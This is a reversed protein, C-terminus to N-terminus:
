QKLSQKTLIIAEDIVSLPFLRNNINKTDSSSRIQKEICLKYCWAFVIDTNINISREKCIEVVDYFDSDGPNEFKDLRQNIIKLQAETVGFKEVVFAELKEREEIEKLILESNKILARALSKLESDKSTLPAPYTGYKHISPLVEHFLWRQFKKCAPSNDRSVIRYMGPQTVFPEKRSSGAVSVFKREDEDLAEAAAKVLEGLGKKGHIASLKNNEIALVKVIDELSVLIDGNEEYISRLPIKEGSFGTYPILLSTTSM